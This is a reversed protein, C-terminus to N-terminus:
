AGKRILHTTHRAHLFHELDPGRVQSSLLMVIWSPELQM